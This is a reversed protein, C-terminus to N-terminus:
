VHARGIKLLLSVGDIGLHYHVGFAPIWEHDEVFQWPEPSAPDFGFWLPISAVFAVLSVALASPKALKEPLAAVLLGGVIPLFTVLSLLPM